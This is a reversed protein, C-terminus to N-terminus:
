GPSRAIGAAGGTQDRLIQRTQQRAPAIQGCDAATFRMAHVNSRSSDVDENVLVPVGISKRPPNALLARPARDSRCGCPLAFAVEAADAVAEWALPKRLWTLPLALPLLALAGVPVEEDNSFEL